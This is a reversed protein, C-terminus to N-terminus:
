IQRATALEQCTMQFDGDGAFCVVTKAPDHVKAAIAAPVGYGMAGSIPALLRQNAGYQFIKNPWFAFNGAGNTIITDKPLIYQLHATVEAMDVPTRMPPAAIFHQHTQRRERCWAVWQRALKHGNLHLSFELSSAQVGLTPIIVKGIENADRHVHILTKGSKPVQLVEYAGTTMEGFRPGITLILDSQTLTERVHAPM